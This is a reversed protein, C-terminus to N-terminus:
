LKSSDASLAVLAVDHLMHELGSTQRVVFVDQPLSSSTSPKSNLAAAPEKQHDQQASPSFSRPSAVPATSSPKPKRTSRPKSSSGSKAASPPTSTSSDNEDDIFAASKRIKRVRKPKPRPSSPNSAPSPDVEMADPKKEESTSGGSKRRSTTSKTRRRKPTHTEKEVDTQSMPDEAETEDEVPRARKRAARGTRSPASSPSPSLLQGCVRVLFWNIMPQHLILASGQANSILRSSRPLCWILLTNETGGVRTNIRVTHKGEYCWGDPPGM